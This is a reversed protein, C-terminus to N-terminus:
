AVAAPAAADKTVTRPKLKKPCGKGTCKLTITSGARANRIVIEDFLTYAKAYRYTVLIVSDLAPLKATPTPTVVPPATTAATTGTAVPTVPPTVVPVDADAGSCDEDIGNGPVDTAGPHVAANNDNCDVNAPSGDRDTDAYTATECAILVDQDPAM